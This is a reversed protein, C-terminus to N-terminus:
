FLYKIDNILKKVENADTGSYYGRLHGENDVLVMKESHNYGGPENKDKTIGLYFGKISIKNIDDEKGRVFNWNSLDTDYKKAYQQLKEFSDRDPDISFAVINYRDKYKELAQQIRKAGQTMRPCISPCSTFFFYAIYPKGKLQETGFVTSDQKHFQFDPLKFYVSDGNKVTHIGLYPLVKSKKNSCSTLLFFFFLLGWFYNYKNILAM